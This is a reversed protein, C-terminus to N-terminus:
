DQGVLRYGGIGLLTREPFQFSSQAVAEADVDDCGDECSHMITEIGDDFVLEIEYHLM